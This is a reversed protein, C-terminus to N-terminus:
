CTILTEFLKEFINILLCDERITLIHHVHQYVHRTDTATLKVNLFSYPASTMTDQVELLTPKDVVALM